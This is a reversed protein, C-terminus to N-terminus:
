VTYRGDNCIDLYSRIRGDMYYDINRHDDFPYYNCNSSNSGFGLCQQSLKLTKGICTFVRRHNAINEITCEEKTRKCCWLKDNVKFETVNSDHMMCKCIDNARRNWSVLNVTFDHTSVCTVINPFWSKTLLDCYILILFGRWLIDSLAQM